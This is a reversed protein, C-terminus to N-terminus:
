SLWWRETREANLPVAAAAPAAATGDPGADDAAPRARLMLDRCALLPAPDRQRLSQRHAMNLDGLDARLSHWRAAWHQRQRALRSPRRRRGTV